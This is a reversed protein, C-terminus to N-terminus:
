GATQSGPSMQFNKQKSVSWHFGTPGPQFGSVGPIGGVPGQLHQAPLLIRPAPPPTPLCPGCGQGGVVEQCSPSALSVSKCGSPPQASSEQVLSGPLPVRAPCVHAPRLGLPLTGVSLAPAWPTAKERAVQAGGWSLSASFPTPALSFSFFCPQLTPAPPCVLACCSTSWGPVMTM